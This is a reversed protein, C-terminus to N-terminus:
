ASSRYRPSSKSPPKNPQSNYFSKSNPQNFPRSNSQNSPRSNSPKNNSPRNNNFLKSSNSSNSNSSLKSSNFFNSNSSLSNSNFLRNSNFRSLLLRSSSKSNLRSHSKNARSSCLLRKTSRVM